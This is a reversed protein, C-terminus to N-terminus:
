LQVLKAYVASVGVVKPNGVIFLHERARTLAVNLKRDILTGDAEAFTQETLFDMQSAEHVTLGYVIVDRQSGQYREVTDITIGDVDLSADGQTELAQRVAAIQNRYPVIVGVTRLPDFRDSEAYVQLVLDAIIDAEVVNVKDSVAHTPRTAPIFFVRQGGEEVQHPLPVPQLKGEYFAQNPFDAIATHMRGQRTLLYHPGIHLWREFLSNRCNTLGISRLSDEEVRSQEQSQQVVAPLQKHDGILVFKDIAEGRGHKACLLPMLHPELIQSAEDIIALDFHKLEFLSQKGGLATTTGVFVRQRQVLSRVEEVNRCVDMQSSLLYKKYEDACSLASGVRIFDIGREVLKSCIEDVARNTYSLLLVNTSPEELQELLINLLGFSTKGTGPPGILLFYDCAQKAQLVLENFPGYDGKLTKKADMEPARQALILDRRRKSASLFTHMGRYLATFSAEMFDHEIAWRVDEKQEFVIRHTQPARLHLMVTKGDIDAISARIVMTQRVDPVADQQYSYLVVIDGRRFNPLFDSSPSAMGDLPEVPEVTDVLTTRVPRLEVGVIAQDQTRLATITLDDYINGALRKEELTANWASAFGSCEKTRNGLKAQLHEVALFRMFRCYYDRELPSAQQIPSLLERLQPEVYNRWLQPSVPRQCFMGPTLSQLLAAGKDSALVLENAVMENRLRMADFLKAPAAGTRVLGKPYKSYLLFASIEDNRLHFQYHLVAQYLLLQVFHKEQPRIHEPNVPFESKGSKQEVVVRYDTQLLDM